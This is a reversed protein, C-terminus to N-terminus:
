NSKEVNILRNKLCDATTCLASITSFNFMQVLFLWGCLCCMQNKASVYALGLFVLLATKQWREVNFV